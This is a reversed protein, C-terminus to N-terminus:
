DETGTKKPFLSLNSSLVPATTSLNKAQQELEGAQTDMTQLLAQFSARLQLIQDTYKELLKKQQKAQDQLQRRLHEEQQQTENRLKQAYAQAEILTNSILSQQNCQTLYESRLTRLEEELTAIKAQAEEMAKANQADKEMLKASFIEEMSTVLRYVSNKQYGFLGTKLEELKM